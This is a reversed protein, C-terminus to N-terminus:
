LSVTPKIDENSMLKREKLRQRYAKNNKKFVEKLIEKNANYYNKRYNKLEERDISKNRESTRKIMKERNAQYYAKFYAKTEEPTM